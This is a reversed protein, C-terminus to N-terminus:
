DFTEAAAPALSRFISAPPTLIVPWILAMLMASLITQILRPPSLFASM